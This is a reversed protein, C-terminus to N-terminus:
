IGSVLWKMVATVTAGEGGTYRMMGYISLTQIVLILLLAYLGIGKPPLVNRFLIQLLINNVVYTLVLPSLLLLGRLVVELILRSTQSTLSLWRIGTNQRVAFLLFLGLALNFLISLVTFALIRGAGAERTKDQGSTGKQKGNSENM